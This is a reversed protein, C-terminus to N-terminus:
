VTRDVVVIVFEPSSKEDEGFALWAATLGGALVVVLLVVVFFSTWCRM